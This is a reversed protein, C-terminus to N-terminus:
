TTLAADWGGYLKAIVAGVVGTVTCITTKM